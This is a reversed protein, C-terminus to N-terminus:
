SNSTPCSSHETIKRQVYRTAATASVAHDVTKMDTRDQNFDTVPVLACGCKGLRNNSLANLKAVPFSPITIPRM